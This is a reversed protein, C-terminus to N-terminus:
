PRLCRKVNCPNGPELAQEAMEFIKSITGFTKLSKDIRAVRTVSVLGKGSHGRSLKILSVQMLLLETQCHSCILCNINM